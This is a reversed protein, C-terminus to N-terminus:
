GTVVGEFLQYAILVIPLHIEYFIFSSEHIRVQMGVLASLIKCMLYTPNLRHEILLSVSEKRIYSLM